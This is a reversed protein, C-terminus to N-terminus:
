GNMMRVKEMFVLTVRESVKETRAIRYGHREYLRIRSESKSGTFLEFRRVRKFRREIERLLRSGIGRRQFEPLVALRSVTCADGRQRGRVAGIIRGGATAKLIASNGFDGCLSEATERLPALSWDGYLRAESQFAARQVALIAEADGAAAEGIKVRERRRENNV